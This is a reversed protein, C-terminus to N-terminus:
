AGTRNLHDRVTVELKVVYKDKIDLRISGFGTTSQVFKIKEGVDLLVAANHEMLKTENKGSPESPNTLNM